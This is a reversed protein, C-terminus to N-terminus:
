KSTLVVAAIIIARALVDQSDTREGLRGLATRAIWYGVFARMTLNAVHYIASQLAPQTDQMGTGLALWFLACGILFWHFMRGFEGRRFRQFM